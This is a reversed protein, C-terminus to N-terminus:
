AATHKNDKKATKKVQLPFAKFYTTYEADEPTLALLEEIDQQAKLAIPDYLESMNNKM